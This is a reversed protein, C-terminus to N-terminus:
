ASYATRKICDIGAVFQIMTLFCPKPSRSAAGAKIWCYLANARRGLRHASSGDRALDILDARDEPSLFGGRIM